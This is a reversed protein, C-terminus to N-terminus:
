QQAKPSCVVPGWEPQPTVGEKSGLLAEKNPAACDLNKKCIGLM